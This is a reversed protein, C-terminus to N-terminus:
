LYAADKCTPLVQPLLCICKYVAIRIGCTWPKSAESKGEGAYGCHYDEWKKMRGDFLVRGGFPGPKRDLPRTTATKPSGNECRAMRHPDIPFSGPKWTTSLDVSAAGPPSIRSIGPELRPTDLRKAIRATTTLPPSVKPVIGSATHMVTVREAERRVRTGPNLLSQENTILLRLQSDVSTGDSRGPALLRM